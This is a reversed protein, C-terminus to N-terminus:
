KMGGSYNRKLHLAFVGLGSTPLLRISLGLTGLFMMAGSAIETAPSSSTIGIIPFLILFFVTWEKISWIFLFFVVLALHSVWLRVADEISRADLSFFNNWLFAITGLGIVLGFLYCKREVSMQDLTKIM